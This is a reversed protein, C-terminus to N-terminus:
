VAGSLAAFDVHLKWLKGLGESLAKMPERFEKALQKAARKVEDLKDDDVLALFNDVKDQAELLYPLTKERHKLLGM